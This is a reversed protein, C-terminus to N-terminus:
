YGIALRAAERAAATSHGWGVLAREIDALPEGARWMGSAAAIALRLASPDMQSAVYVEHSRQLADPLRRLQRRNLTPLHSRVALRQTSMRYAGGFQCMRLITRQMTSNRGVSDGLGLARSTELLDVRFGSPCEELGRAFRRLMWVTSPGLLGLYFREVYSSRPDHGDVAFSPDSWSVVEIMSPLATAAPTPTTAPTPTATPRASSGLDTHPRDPGSLEDTQQSDTTQRALDLQGPM